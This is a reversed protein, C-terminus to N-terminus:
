SVPKTLEALDTLIRTRIHRVLRFLDPCYVSPNLFGAGERYRHPYYGAGCVDHVECSQCDACLADVGAQRAIIPPLDLAADFPDRFVDLGTEPAGDFSSKLSDVQQISGDTDVVVSAVKGLGVTEVGSAGGLIGDVIGQLVRVETEQRPAGYWREFIAILWDAYPTSADNTRSPPPATWNGHPLLFDVVPPAFALLAEYTEVPDNRLDITCLLRSFLPRYREETLLRLGRATAEYSGRGNVYRRHRDHAESGGDLSVGVMIGQEAMVDLVAANLRTGNTQLRLRVETSSPVAARIATAAHVLAETGALLPEGGHLVINVVRVRHATVHEGIRRAAQDLVARSMRMSRARWSQDAMEYVYCYDCALNCWGHVKLIFERFPVPEWGSRRRRAEVWATNPWAESLGAIAVNTEYTV